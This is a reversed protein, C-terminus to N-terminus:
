CVHAAAQEPTMELWRALPYHHCPDPAYRVQRVGDEDYLYGLLAIDGYKDTIIAADNIQAIEQITMIQHPQTQNPTGTQGKVYGKFSSKYLRKRM